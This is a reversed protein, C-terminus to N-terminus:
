WWHYLSFYVSYRGDQSERYSTMHFAARSIGSLYTERGLIEVAKSRTIKTEKMTKHDTLTLKVERFADKLQKIDSQPHGSNLFWDEDQKTFRLRTAM